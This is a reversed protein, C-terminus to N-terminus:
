SINKVMMLGNITFLSRQSKPAEKGLALPGSTRTVSHVCYTVGDITVSTAYIEEDLAIAVAEAKSFGDSHTAARLQVQFGRHQVREGDIQSRGGDRGETDFIAMCNDSVDPMGAAYIPWPATPPDAGHGLDILVRRLIDAPSHELTVAPM